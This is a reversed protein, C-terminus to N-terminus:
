PPPPFPKASATEADAPRSAAIWATEGRAVVPKRGILLPIRWATPARRSCDDGCRARGELWTYRSGAAIRTWRVAQRDRGPLTPSATEPARGSQLWTPSLANAFVGDPGIRLFPEGRRGIVTVPEAGGNDLTIAPVPGPVIALEVGPAAEPATLLVPRWFGQPAPRARFRGSVTIRRGDLLMDIRWGAGEVGSDAQIRPDFWGWSRDRRALVWRPEGAARDRVPREAYYAPAAANVWTADPGIRIVPTGRGDLVELVRGTRNVVLMQPALTEVLRVEIGAPLRGAPDLVAELKAGQGEHAQVPAALCCLAALMRVFARM